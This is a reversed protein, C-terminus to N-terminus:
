EDDHTSFWLALSDKEGYEDIKKMHKNLIQTINVGVYRRTMVGGCEVCAIRMAVNGNIVDSRYYVIDLTKNCERNICIFLANISNPLHVSNGKYDVIDDRRKMAIQVIKNQDRESFNNLKM